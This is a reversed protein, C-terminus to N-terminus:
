QLKKQVRFRHRKGRENRVERKNHSQLLESSTMTTEGRKRAFESGEKRDDGGRGFDNKSVRESVLRSDRFRDNGETKEEPPPSGKEERTLNVGREEKRLLSASKETEYLSLAGKGSKAASRKNGLVGAEIKEKGGYNRTV